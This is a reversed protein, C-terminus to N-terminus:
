GVVLVQYKNKKNVSSLRSHKAIHSCFPSGGSNQEIEGDSVRFGKSRHFLNHNFYLYIVM